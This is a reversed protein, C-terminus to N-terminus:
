LRDETSPEVDPVKSMAREFRERSGRVARREVYEESALASLKEAVALAVLQNMSVNQKKAAEELASYLYDPLRVSITKMVDERNPPFSWCCEDAQDGPRPTVSLTDEEQCGRCLHLGADFSIVYLTEPFTLARVGHVRAPNEEQGSESGGAM